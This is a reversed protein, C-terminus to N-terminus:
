ETPILSVGQVKPVFLSTSQSPPSACFSNILLLALVQYTFLVKDKGLFM